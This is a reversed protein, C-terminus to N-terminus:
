LASKHFISNDYYKEAINIPMRLADLYNINFVSSLTMFLNELNSCFHNVYIYKKKIKEDHNEKIEFYIDEFLMKYNKKDIYSANNNENKADSKFLFMEKLCKEIFEKRSENYGRECGLMDATYFVCDRYKSGESFFSYCKEKDWLSHVPKNEFIGFVLYKTKDKIKKIFPSTPM